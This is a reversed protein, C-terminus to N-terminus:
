FVGPILRWRVREVYACYATDTRLVREEYLTRAIQAGDAMVWICVNWTSANALVFGLHMFFYSAYLPHRVLAYTGTESIGRHAAVIGFNRGLAGLTAVALAVGILIIVASAADPLLTLEAPRFALPGLTGVLAVIRGGMSQEVQTAPRRIVTFFVVLLGSILFLSASLRSQQVLRIAQWVYFTVIALRGLLDGVTVRSNTNM